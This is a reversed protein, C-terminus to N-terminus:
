IILRPTWVSEVDMAAEPPMPIAFIIDLAM